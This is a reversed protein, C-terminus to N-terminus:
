IWVQIPLPATLSTFEFGGEFGGGPDMNIILNISENNHLFVTKYNLPLVADKLEAMTKEWAVDETGSIKNTPM